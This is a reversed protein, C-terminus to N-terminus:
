VSVYKKFFEKVACYLECYDSKNMSKVTLITFYLMEKLNVWHAKGWGPSYIYEGSEFWEVLIQIRNFCGVQNIM